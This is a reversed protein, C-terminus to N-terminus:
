GNKVEKKDAMAKADASKANMATLIRAVEKKMNSISSTNKLSGKSLDLRAKFIDDRKAKLDEKLAEISKETVDIKKAKAM